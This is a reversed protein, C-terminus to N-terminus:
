SSGRAPLRKQILCNEGTYPLPCPQYKWARLIGVLSLGPLSETHPFDSQIVELAYIVGPHLPSCLLALPLLEKAQLALAFRALARV